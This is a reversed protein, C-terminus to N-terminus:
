GVTQSTSTCIAMGKLGKSGLLKATVQRGLLGQLAKLSFNSMLAVRKFRIKMCLEAGGEQDGMLYRDRGFDWKVNISTSPHKRILNRNTMISIRKRLRSRSNRSRNISVMVIIHEQYGTMVLRFSM